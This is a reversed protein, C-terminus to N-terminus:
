NTIGSAFATDQMIKAIKCPSTFPGDLKVVQDMFDLRDHLLSVNGLDPPDRHFNFLEEEVGPGAINVLELEGDDYNVL